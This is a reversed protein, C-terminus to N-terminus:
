GYATKVALILCYFAWHQAFKQCQSLMSATRALVVRQTSLKLELAMNGIIINAM